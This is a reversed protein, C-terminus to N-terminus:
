QSVIRRYHREMLKGIRQWDFARALKAAHRARRKREGEDEVAQVIAEALDSAAGAGALEVVWGAAHLDVEDSLAVASSVIPPVGAAMAELVSLGFNDDASPAILVDAALLALRRQEDDLQGCWRVGAPLSGTAQSAAAVLGEQDPGALLLTLRSCSGLREGAALALHAGKRKTLRGLFLVVKQDDVVGHGRRFASVEEATESSRAQLADVDVGLPCVFSSSWGGLCAQQREREHTFHVAASRALNKAEFLLEALQKRWRRRHWIVPDLTGHPRVVYPVGHKRCLAPGILSHFLYLSHVHVLDFREIRRRLDSWLGPSPKVARPPWVRYRRVSVPSDSRVTLPQSGPRVFDTTMIEVDHGRRAVAEAMGLVAAAPGGSARDLDAILHLIRLLDARWPSASLYPAHPESLGPLSQESSRTVVVLEGEYYGSEM